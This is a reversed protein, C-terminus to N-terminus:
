GQAENIAEVIEAPCASYVRCAVTMQAAAMYRRSSDAATGETDVAPLANDVTGGLTADALIAAMAADLYALMTNSATLLDVHQAFLYVKIGFEYEAHWMSASGTARVDSAIEDVAVYFPPETTPFGRFVKPREVDGYLNAFAMSGFVACLRRYVEDRAAAFGVM